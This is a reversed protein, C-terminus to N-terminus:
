LYTFLSRTLSPIFVLVFDKLVVKNRGCKKLCTKTIRKKIIVCNLFLYLKPDNWARHVLLVFVIPKERVSHYFLVVSFARFHFYM